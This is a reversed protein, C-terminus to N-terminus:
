TMHLDMENGPQYDTPRYICQTERQRERREAQQKGSVSQGGEGVPSREDSRFLAQFRRTQDGVKGRVAHILSSQIPSVLSSIDPLGSPVHM